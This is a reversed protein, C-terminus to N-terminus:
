LIAETGVWGDLCCSSPWMVLLHPDTQSLVANVNQIIWGVLMVNLMLTFSLCKTQQRHGHCFIIIFVEWMITRQSILISQCKLGGPGSIMSCFSIDSRLYVSHLWLTLSHKPPCCSNSDLECCSRLWLSFIALILDILFTSSFVPM